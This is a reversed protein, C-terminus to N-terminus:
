VKSGKNNVFSLHVNNFNLLKLLLTLRSICYKVNNIRTRIMDVMFSSHRIDEYCLLLSNTYLPPIEVVMVSLGFASLKPLINSRVKYSLGQLIQVM